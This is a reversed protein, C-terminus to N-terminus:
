TVGSSVRQLTFSLWSWVWPVSLSMHGPNSTPASTQITPIPCVITRNYFDASCDSREGLMNASNKRRYEGPGSREEPRGHGERQSQRQSQRQTEQSQTWRWLNRGTQIWRKRETTQLLFLVWKLEQNLSLVHARCSGTLAATWMEQKFDNRASVLNRVCLCSHSFHSCTVCVEKGLRTNLTSM